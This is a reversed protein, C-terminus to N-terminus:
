RKDSGAGCECEVSGLGPFSVRIAAKRVKRFGFVLKVLTM